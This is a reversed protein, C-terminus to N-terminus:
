ETIEKEIGNTLPLLEAYTIKFVCDPHGALIMCM